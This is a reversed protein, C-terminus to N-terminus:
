PALADISAVVLALLAIILAAVALWLAKRATRSPGRGNRDDSGV